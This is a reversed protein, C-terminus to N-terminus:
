ARRRPNGHGVSTEVFKTSAFTGLALQATILHQLSRICEIATPSGQASRYARESTWFEISLFMSPVSPNQMLDVHIYGEFQSFLTRWPGEREFIKTFAPTNCTQVDDLRIAYLM